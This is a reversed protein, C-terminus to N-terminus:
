IIKASNYARPNFQGLTRGGVFFFYAAWVFLTGIVIFAHNNRANEGENNKFARKAIGSFDPNIENLQNQIDQNKPNVGVKNIERGERIRITSRREGVFIAGWLAATGAVLHIVGSGAFDHFGKDHLWGEGWTWALIIPYVFAALLFSIIVYASLNTREALSGQFAAVVVTAYAFQIVWHLYNDKAVHEFGSSAFFQKSNGVFYEPTAFALGYGSLWFALATVIVNFLNKMLMASRNKKSVSGSEILAFGAQMLFIFGASALIWVADTAEKNDYV